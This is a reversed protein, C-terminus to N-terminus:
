EAPIDHQVWSTSAEDWLWYKGEVDAPRAVPEVWAGDSDDWVFSPNGSPAPPRFKDSETWTHNIGPNYKAHYDTIDIIQDWGGDGFVTPANDDCLVTNVVVGDKVLAWTQQEYTM